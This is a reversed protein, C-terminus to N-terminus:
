HVIEFDSFDFRQIHPFESGVPTHAIVGNELVATVKYIERGIFPKILDDVKVNNRNTKILELKM